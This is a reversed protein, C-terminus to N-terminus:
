MYFADRGYQMAVDGLDADADPHWAALRQALRHRVRRQAVAHAPPPQDAAPLRHRVRDQVVEPAQPPQDDVAPLGPQSSSATAAVAGANPRPMRHELKPKKKLRHSGTDGAAPLAPQSSSAALDGAKPRLMRHRSDSDPAPLPRSGPSSSVTSAITGANPCPMRDDAAPLGLPSKSMTSAVTGAKPHPRRHEDGDASPLGHPQRM